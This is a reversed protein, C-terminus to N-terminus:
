KPPNEFKNKPKVIKIIWGYESSYDCTECGPRNIGEYTLKIDEADFLELLAVGEKISPMEPLSYMRTYTLDYDSGNMNIKFVEHDYKKGAPFLKRVDELSVKKM